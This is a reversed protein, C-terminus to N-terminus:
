SENSLAKFYYRIEHKTAERLSIVHMGRETYTMHVGRDRVLSARKVLQPDFSFIFSGAEGSLISRRLTTAARSRDRM